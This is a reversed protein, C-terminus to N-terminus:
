EQHGATDWSTLLVLAVLVFIATIMVLVIQRATTPQPFSM